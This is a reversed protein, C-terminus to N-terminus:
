EPWRLGTPEFADSDPEDDAWGVTLRLFFQAVSLMETLEEPVARVRPLWEERLEFRPGREARDIFLTEGDAAVLGPFM